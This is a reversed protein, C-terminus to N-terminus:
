YLTSIFKRITDQKIPPSPMKEWIRRAAERDSLSPNKARLDSLEIRVDDRWDPEIDQAKLQAARTADALAAQSRKKSLALDERRRGTDNDKGFRWWFREELRGLEFAYASVAELDKDEAANCLQRHVRIWEALLNDFSGEAFMGQPPFYFDSQDKAWDFFEQIQRERASLSKSAEIRRKWYEIRNRAVEFRMGSHAEVPHPAENIENIGKKLLEWGEKGSASRVDWEQLGITKRTEKM